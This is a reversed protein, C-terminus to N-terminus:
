GPRRRSTSPSSRDYEAEPLIGEDRLGRARDLNMRTLDRQAEAAALQAREQRTDLRVLLEGSAVQRGSEFTIAEVIGPTDASVTVGHVAVVSGIAAITAPWQEQRAVITTVAEPPPQFSAAQAAGAQIQKFKVTGIAGLFGIVALLMIVMRKRM